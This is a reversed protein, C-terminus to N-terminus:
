ALAFPLGVAVLASFGVQVVCVPWYRRDERVFLFVSAAMLCVACFRALAAPAGLGVSMLVAFTFFIVLMHAAWRGGSAIALRGASWLATMFVPHLWEDLLSQPRANLAPFSGV